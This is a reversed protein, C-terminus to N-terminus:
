QLLGKFLASLTRPTLAFRYRPGGEVELVVRTKKTLPARPLQVIVRLDRGWPEQVFSSIEGHEWSVGEIRSMSGGELRFRLWVKEDGRLADVLTMEPQGPLGERRDIAVPTARLLGDLDLAPAAASAPAPSPAAVLPPPPPGAGPVLPPTPTAAVGPVEQGSGDELALRVESDEGAAASALELRIVTAPGRFEFVGRTPHAVPSVVIVGRPKTEAVSLGLPVKESGLGKLQRMPEPFVVRTVRNVPCEIRVLAPDKPVVQTRVPVALALLLVIM